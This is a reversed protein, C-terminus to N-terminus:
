TELIGEAVVQCRDHSVTGGRVACTMGTEDAHRVLRYTGPAADPVPIISVGTLSRIVGTWGPDPLAPRPAPPIAAMLQQEVDAACFLQKSGTTRAQETLLDKLGALNVAAQEGAGPRTGLVRLLQL